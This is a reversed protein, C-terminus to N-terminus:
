CAPSGCDSSGDTIDFSATTVPPAEMDVPPIDGCYQYRRRHNFWNVWEATALEVEEITRWPKCPKILETKYLGNITEALANDYHRVGRGLTPNGSRRTTRHVPDFHVPGRDTHHVVDEPRVRGRAVPGSPRSSRTSCWRLRWRRRSGGAWSGGPTPTLSSSSTPSGSWTSVYTLDAMWLRNPAPPGFLHGALDAPRAAVPDAVTTKRAKGRTAGSLGLEAM